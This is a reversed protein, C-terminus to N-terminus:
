VTHPNTPCKITALTSYFHKESHPHHKLCRTKKKTEFCIPVNQIYRIFLDLYILIVISMVHAYLSPIFRPMVEARDSQLDFAFSSLRIIKYSPKRVKRAGLTRVGSRAESAVNAAHAESRACRYLGAKSAYRFM